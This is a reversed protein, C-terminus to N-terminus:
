YLLLYTCIRKPRLGKGPVALINHKRLEALYDMEDPVPSKPFMYFAGQPLVVSYGM